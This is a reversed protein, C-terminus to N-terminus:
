TWHRPEDSPCKPLGIADAATNPAIPLRNRVSDLAKGTPVRNRDELELPRIGRAPIVALEIVNPRIKLAGLGLPPEPDHRDDGALLIRPDKTSAGVAPALRQPKLEEALLAADADVVEVDQVRVEPRREDLDARVERKGRPHPDVAL